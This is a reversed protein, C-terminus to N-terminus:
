PEPPPLKESAYRALAAETKEWEADDPLKKIVPIAIMKVSRDPIVQRVLWTNKDLDHLTVTAGPPCTEPM